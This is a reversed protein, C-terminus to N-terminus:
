RTLGCARIKRWIAYWTCTLSDPEPAISYINFCARADNTNVLDLLKELNNRELNCDSNLTSGEGLFLCADESFHMAMLEAMCTKYSFSNVAFASGSEYFLRDNVCTEDQDFYLSIRANYKANRQVSNLSTFPCFAEYPCWSYVSTQDPTFRILGPSLGKTCHRPAYVLDVPTHILVREHPPMPLATVGDYKFRNKRLIGEAITSVRDDSAVGHNNCPNFPAHDITTGSAKEPCRRYGYWNCQTYPSFSEGNGRIENQTFESLVNSGIGATEGSYYICFTTHSETVGPMIGPLSLDSDPPSHAARVRYM